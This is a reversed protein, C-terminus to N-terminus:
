SQKFFHSGNHGYIDSLSATKTQNLEHPHNYILYNYFSPLSNVKINWLDIVKVFVSTLFGGVSRAM